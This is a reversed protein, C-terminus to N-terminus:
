WHMKGFRGKNKIRVEKFENIALGLHEIRRELQRVRTLIDERSIEVEWLMAVWSMITEKIPMVLKHKYILETLM